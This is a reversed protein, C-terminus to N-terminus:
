RSCPFRIDPEMDSPLQVALDAPKECKVVRGTYIGVLCCVDSVIGGYNV